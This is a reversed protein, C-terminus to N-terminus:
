KKARAKKVPKEDCAAAGYGRAIIQMALSDPVDIIDDKKYKKGRFEGGDYMKLRM